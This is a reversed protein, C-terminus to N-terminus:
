HSISLAAPIASVGERLIRYTSTSSDSRSFQLDATASPELCNM